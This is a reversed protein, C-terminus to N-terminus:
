QARRGYPLAETVEAPAAGQYNRNENSGYRTQNRLITGPWYCGGEEMGLAYVDAAVSHPKDDLVEPAAWRLTYSQNSTTSTFGLSADRLVTNGFDTIVAVEDKSILVNLGKLDGHVLGTRHLYTLGDAMDICLKMRDVQPYKNVYTRLNGNEMWPSVMVIQGDLEVLGILRAVNRHDCKSWVYIERAAHKLEKQKESNPDHRALMKKVAVKTGDELSGMRVEGFGGKSLPGGQLTLKSTLIRCGHRTLYEVVERAPMYSGILDPTSSNSDYAILRPGSAGSFHLGNLVGCVRGAKPRKKPDSNWCEVLIEWLKNGWEVNPIAAYPRDPIEKNFIAIMAEFNTKRAYPEKGTFTEKPLLITMGLSYVDTKISQDSGDALEPAAWRIASSSGTRSATFRLTYAELVTNGFGILAAVRDRSILVNLGKVDGHVIGISHLYALAGAVQTCLSFRNVDQNKKIYSCLDGHEMWPSVMAIQRRFEALGLLPAVYPHHCRSWNYLERATRSAKLHKRGQSNSGVRFITKLAVPTGDRLKGMYMDKCGGQSGPASDCSEVDLEQTVDKCGHNCLQAITDPISMNSRIVETIRSTPCTPDDPGQYSSKLLVSIRAAKPRRNPSYDWCQVLLDWLADGWGHNKPIHEQSREPNENRMVARAVESDNKGFYPVQGTLAELIIMGLAYVDTEVSCSGEGLLEPAMWRPSLVPEADTADSEPATVGLAPYGFGSIIAAGESVLINSGKLDGHIIGVSHLYAVGDAVQGCLGLRGLDPNNTLYAGLDIGEVWNTVLAIQSRFNATGRLEAVNWHNCKSWALITREAYQLGDPNQYDPLRILKVNVQTQPENRLRTLHVEQPPADPSDLDFQGTLNPCGLHSLHEIIASHDRGSAGSTPPASYSPGHSNRYSTNTTTDHRGAPRHPPVPAPMSTPQVPTPPYTNSNMPRPVPLTASRPPPNNEFGGPVGSSNHQPVPFAPPTPRPSNFAYTSTFPPPSTFEQQDFTPGTSRPVEPSSSYGGPHLNNLPITFGGVGNPTRPSYPPSGVPRAGSDHGFSPATRRLRASRCNIIDRAIARINGALVNVFCHTQDAYSPVTFLPLGCIAQEIDIVEDNSLNKVQPILDAWRAFLNSFFSPCTFRDLRQCGGSPLPILVFPYGQSDSDLIAYYLCLAPGLPDQSSLGPYILRKQKATAIARQSLIDFAGLVDDESLSHPGTENFGPYM